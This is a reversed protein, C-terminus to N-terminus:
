HLCTLLPPSHCTHDSRPHSALSTTSSGAPARSPPYCWTSCLVTRPSCRFTRYVLLLCLSLCALTLLLSRTGPLLFYSGPVVATRWGGTNSVQRRNQMLDVVMKHKQSNVIVSLVTIRKYILISDIFSGKTDYCMVGRSGMM